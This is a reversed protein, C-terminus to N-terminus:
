FVLIVSHTYVLNIYQEICNCLHDVASVTFSIQKIPGTSISCLLIAPEPVEGGAGRKWSPRWYFNSFFSTM